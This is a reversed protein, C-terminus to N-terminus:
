VLVLVTVARQNLPMLSPALRFKLASSQVVAEGTVTWRSSFDLAAHNRREHLVAVITPGEPENVYFILYGEFRM